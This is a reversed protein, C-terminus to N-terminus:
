GLVSRKSQELRQLLLSDCFTMTELDLKTAVEDHVM